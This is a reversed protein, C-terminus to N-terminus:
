LAADPRRRRDAVTGRDPALTGALVHMLTSKGAGNHGVLGLCEGAAVALDVGALARVAGFSKEVGDLRVIPEATGAM